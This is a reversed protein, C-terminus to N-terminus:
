EVEVFSVVDMGDFMTEDPSIVVFEGASVGNKIEVFEDNMNGIEIERQELKNEENMVYVIQMDGDDWIAMHPVSLIKEGGGIKVELSVHFGQRLDKTDDTIKVKFPYMTVSGGGDYGAFEDGGDGEPFQSVSEVVGNWERDKFVKPRIIVAQGEEMKVTDFETMTGIVKFPENSIIHVAADTNGGEVNALNKEVKVVMGDIKSVVTMEKIQKDLENIQEQTATIEAKTGEYEMEMQVKEAVLENVEEQTVSSIVEGTEEDIVTTGVQQKLKAIKKDMEAMSSIEIDARKKVLDRERVAKTFESQLKATDYAFLPDGAKVTANEEVFYEVIEGKEPELFVKQESEPIIKGTVLINDALENETAKQVLIETEGEFEGGVAQPTSGMFKKWGFFALVVIAIIVVIWIWVKKM